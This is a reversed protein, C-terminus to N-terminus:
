MRAIVGSASALVSFAYQHDTARIYRLSIRSQCGRMGSGEMRAVPYTNHQTAYADGRVAARRGGVDGRGNGDLAQARTQEPEGAKRAGEHEDLRAGVFVGREECDEDEGRGP